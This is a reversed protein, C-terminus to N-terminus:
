TGQRFKGNIECLALIHVKRQKMIGRIQSKLLMHQQHGESLEAQLKDHQAALQQSCATPAM